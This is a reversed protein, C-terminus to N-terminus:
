LNMSPGNLVQWALCLPCPAAAECEEGRQAAESYVGWIHDLVWFFGLGVVSIYQVPKPFCRSQKEMEFKDIFDPNGSSNRGAMILVDKNLMTGGTYSFSGPAGCRPCKSARLLPCSHFSDPLWCGASWHQEYDCLTWERITCFRFTLIQAAICCCSPDPWAPERGKFAYEDPCAKQPSGCWNRPTLYIYQDKIEHFKILQASDAAHFQADRRSQEGGGYGCILLEVWKEELHEQQKM